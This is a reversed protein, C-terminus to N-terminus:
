VDEAATRLQGMHAEGGRQGVNSLAGEIAARGQAGRIQALIQIQYAAPREIAAAREPLDGKAGPQLNQVIVREQLAGGQGPHHKLPRGGGAGVVINEGAIRLQDQIVARVIGVGPGGIPLGGPTDPGNRQVGLRIDGGRRKLQGTQEVGVLVAQGFILILNVQVQPGLGVGIQVARVGIALAVAKGGDEVPRVIPFKGPIHLLQAADGRIPKGLKGRHLIRDELQTELVRHGGVRRPVVPDIRFIGVAPVALGMGGGGVRDVDKHLILTGLLVEAKVRLCVGDGAVVAGLFRHDEGGLDAAYGDFVQIKGPELVLVIQFSAAGVAEAANYEGIGQLGDGCVAERFLPVQAGVDDERVTQVGDVTIGEVARWQHLGQGEAGALRFVAGDM